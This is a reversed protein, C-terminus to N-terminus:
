FQQRWDLCFTEDSKGKAVARTCARLIRWDEFTNLRWGQIEGRGDEVRLGGRIIGEMELYTREGQVQYAPSASVVRGERTQPIMTILGEGTNRDGDMHGKEHAIVREIVAPPPEGMELMINEAMSLQEHKIEVDATLSGVDIRWKGESDRLPDIYEKATLYYCAKTKNM